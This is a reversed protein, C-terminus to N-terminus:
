TWNSSGVTLILIPLLDHFLIFQSASKFNEALVVMEGPIEAVEYMSTSFKCLNSIPRFSSIQNNEDNWEHKLEQHYM